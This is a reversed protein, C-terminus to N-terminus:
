TSQRKNETEENKIGGIHDYNNVDRNHSIASQFDVMIAFYLAM